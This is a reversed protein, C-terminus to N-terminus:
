AIAPASLMLTEVSASANLMVGLGVIMLMTVLLATSLENRVSM